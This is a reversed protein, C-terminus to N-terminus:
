LVTHMNRPIYQLHSIDVPASLWWTMPATQLHLYPVTCYIGLFICVTKNHKAKNHNHLREYQNWMFFKDMNMLTAKSASPCDNSQWLALSTLRTSIPSDTLKYGCCLVAFCFGHAYKKPYVTPSLIQLVNQVLFVFFASNWCCCLMKNLTIRFSPAFAIYLIFNGAYNFTALLYLSMPLVSFVDENTYSGSIAWIVQQVMGPLTTVLHFLGLCLCMRIVSNYTEDQSRLSVNTGTDRRLDRVWFLKIIIAVNGALITTDSIIVSTILQALPRYYLAFWEWGSVAVCQYTPKLSFLVPSYLAFTIVWLVSLSIVAGKISMFGYKILPWYLSIVRHITFLAVTLSSMTLALLIILYNVNCWGLFGPLHDGTLILLRQGFIAFLTVIDSIALSVLYPTKRFGRQSSHFLVGLCLINGLSGAICVGLEIKWLLRVEKPIEFPDTTTNISTNSSLLGTASEFVIIPLVAM